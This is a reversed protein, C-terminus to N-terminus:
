LIGRIEDLSRIMYEPRPQEPLTREERQYLCTHMGYRVGGAIDSTMSDGILMAEHPQLGPIKRFCYDFFAPDPKQVGVESSVFVYRFKGYMGAKKLRNVQQGYPGNSAACLLYRRSLYDLAADAGPEPVASYYLKERFYKEFVHGDFRLGLEKFIMNWRIQQLEEYSLTGQEIQEWLSNNIKEFVPLMSEQYEAIGFERFGERMCERVCGTFSLLTNDIDMFVAKIM